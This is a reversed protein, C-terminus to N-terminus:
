KKTRFIFDIYPCRPLKGNTIKPNEEFPADLVHLITYGKANYAYQDLLDQCSAGKKLVIHCRPTERETEITVSGYYKYINHVISIIDAFQLDDVIDNNAINLLPDNIDNKTKIQIGICGQNVTWSLTSIHKQLRTLVTVLAYDGQAFVIEREALIEKYMDAIPRLIKVNVSIDTHENIKQIVTIINREHIDPLAIKRQLLNQDQSRGIMASFLLVCVFIFYLKEM